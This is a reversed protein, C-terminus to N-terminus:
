LQSPFLHGDCDIPKPEWVKYIISQILIAYQSLQNQIFM